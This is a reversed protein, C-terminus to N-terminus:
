ECKVNQIKMERQVVFSSRDLEDCLSQPRLEGILAVFNPDYSMCGSVLCIISMLLFKKM